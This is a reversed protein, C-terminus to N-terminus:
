RGGNKKEMNNALIFAKSKAKLLSNALDTLSFYDIRIKRTSIFEKKGKEVDDDPWGNWNQTFVLHHHTTICKNEDPEDPNWYFSTELELKEKKADDSPFTFKNEGVKKIQSCKKM